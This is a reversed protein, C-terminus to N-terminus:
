HGIRTTVSARGSESLPGTRAPAPLFLEQSHPPTAGAGLNGVRLGLQQGAEVSTRLDIREVPSTGEIVLVRKKSWGSHLLGAGFRAWM